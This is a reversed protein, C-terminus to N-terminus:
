VLDIGLLLRSRTAGSSAVAGVAREDPRLSTRASPKPWRSILPCTGVLTSGISTTPVHSAYAGVLNDGLISEVRAVLEAVLDNLEPFVTPPSGSETRSSMAANFVGALPRPAPAPKL